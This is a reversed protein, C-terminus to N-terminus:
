STVDTPNYFVMKLVILNHTSFPMLFGLTLGPLEGMVTGHDQGKWEPGKIGVNKEWEM